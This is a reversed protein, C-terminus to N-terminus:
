FITYHALAASMRQANDRQFEWAASKVTQFLRKPDALLYLHNKKIERTEGDDSPGPMYGAGTGRMRSFDFDTQATTM